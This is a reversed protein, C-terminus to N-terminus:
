KIRECTAGTAYMNKEIADIDDGNEYEPYNGGAEVYATIAEDVNISAYNLVERQTLTGNVLNCSVSIGSLNKSYLALQDCKGKAADLAASDLNIDGRTELVYTLRTLRSDTFAFDFSYTYDMDSSSREYSCKLTGTTIKEVPPQQMQYKRSEIFKSIDPLFIIMVLLGLFLSALAFTQVKSGKKENEPASAPVTSAVPEKLDLVEVEEKNKNIDTSLVNVGVNTNPKIAQIGPKDSFLAVRQQQPPVVKNNAVQQVPQGPVNQPAQPMIVNTNVVGGSQASANSVATVNTNIPNTVPSAPIVTNPPFNQVNNNPVGANNPVVKSQNNLNENPNVSNNM